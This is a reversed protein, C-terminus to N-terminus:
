IMQYKRSVMHDVAGDRSQTVMGYNKHLRTYCYQAEDHSKNRM